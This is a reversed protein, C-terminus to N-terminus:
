AAIAQVNVPKLRLSLRGPLDAAAAMGRTYKLVTSTYPPRNAAELKKVTGVHCGMAQAVDVQRLQLHRRTRTLLSLLRALHLEDARVPSGRDTLADLILSETDDDPEPLGEVTLVYQRGVGRAYRQVVPVLSDGSPNLEFQSVASSGGRSGTSIGMRRAVDAHTLGAKIRADRYEALLQRLAARDDLHMSSRTTSPM